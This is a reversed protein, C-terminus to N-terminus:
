TVKKMAAALIREKVMAYGNSEGDIVIKDKTDLAGFRNKTPRKPDAGWQLYHQRTGKAGSKTVGAHLVTSFFSPLAVRFAGPVAPMHMRSKGEIEKAVKEDGVDTETEHSLALLHVGFGRFARAARLLEEQKMRLLTYYAAGDPSMAAPPTTHKFNFMSANSALIGMASVTDMVLVKYRPPKGAEVDSALEAYRKRLWYVAEKLGTPEGVEMGAVGKLSPMYMADDVSKFIYRAPDLGFYTDLEDAPSALVMGSGETVLASRAFSSKGAGSPGTLLISNTLPPATLLPSSENVSSDTM